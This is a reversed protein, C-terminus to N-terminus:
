PSPLAETRMVAEGKLNITGGPLLLDLLPTAPSFSYTVTVKVTPNPFGGITEPTGLGATVNATTLGLGTAYKVAKNKMGAVDDPHVIGYRVGERAANHVASYYYIARGLDFVVVVALLFVPLLLAFEILSQGRLSARVDPAFMDNRACAKPSRLLRRM